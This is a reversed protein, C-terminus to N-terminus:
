VSERCSARGIELYRYLPQRCYAAAARCVAMSCGLIANAGLASKNATGDLAIMLNDIAQQDRADRGMLAPAIVENVNAVAKTVGKGNLTKYNDRLELVEFKGTSAGSPVIGRGFSGDELVIDVEVTPNARSDYIQRGKVSKIKYGEM